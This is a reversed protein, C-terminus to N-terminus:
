PATSDTPLPRFRYHLGSHGAHQDGWVLATMAYQFAVILVVAWLGGMATRRLLQDYPAAARLPAREGPRPLWLVLVTCLVANFHIVGETILRQPEFPLTRSLNGIVIWWLFVLYLLQGRGLWTPPVLPMPRGHRHAWVLLILAAAVLAYALLFWVDISLGYMQGELGERFVGPNKLWVAEVNKRLNLFTIVLLTFLVVYSDTWPRTPPEDAVRPSRTSVYGMALVIGLGNIFGYTQELVSHWNTEWGSTVAMLKIFTAGSFGLGGVLGAVLAVWAAALLRERWMWAFMGITMGLAGSWNDGRPPTMRLGFTLTLIAFGLWWGIALHLVLSTAPDIRQRAVAYVAVVVLAVLAALWDSDYVDLREGLAAIRAAGDEGFRAIQDDASGAFLYGLVLAQALWALFVLTLPPFFETLRKRSLFAPLATGGGGMAGWVFGILYLCAFGYLTSPASGGRSFDFHIDGSHTYAIVMMYSISGGFSWGLAGFFAFYGVRRYWDDRGAVLVVAMAALAGPIMAGFEHGWNGRVGWGISLSLAVLLVAGVRLAPTRAKAAPPRTEYSPTSAADSM